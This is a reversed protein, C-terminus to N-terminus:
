EPEGAHGHMGIVAGRELEHDREEAAIGGFILETGLEGGVQLAHRHLIGRDLPRLLHRWRLGDSPYRKGALFGGARLPAGVRVVNKREIRPTAEGSVLREARDHPKALLSVTFRANKAM